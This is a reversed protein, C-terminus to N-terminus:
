SLFAINKMTNMLYSRHIEQAFIFLHCEARQVIHGCMRASHKNGVGVVLHASIAGTISFLHIPFM